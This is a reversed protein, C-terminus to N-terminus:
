LSEVLCLDRQHDPLIAPLAKPRYPCNVQTLTKGQLEGPFVTLKMTGVDDTYGPATFCYLYRCACKYPVCRYSSQQGARQALPQQMSWGKDSQLTNHTVAVSTPIQSALADLSASIGEPRISLGPVGWPDPCGAQSM